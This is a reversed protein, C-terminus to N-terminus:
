KSDIDNNNINIYFLWFFINHAAYERWNWWVLIDLADIGVSLFICYLNDKFKHYNLNISYNFHTTMHLSIFIPM